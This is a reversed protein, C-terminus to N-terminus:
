ETVERLRMRRWGASERHAIEVLGQQDVVEIVGGCRSVLAEVEFPEKKDWYGVIDHACDKSETSFYGDKTWCEASWIKSDLFAGHIPLNGNPEVSYIKVKDGRRTRYFIGVEIKM